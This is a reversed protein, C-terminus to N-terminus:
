ECEEDVTRTELLRVVKSPRFLARGRSNMISVRVLVWELAMCIPCPMCKLAETKSGKIFGINAKLHLCGLPLSQTCLDNYLVTIDSHAILHKM